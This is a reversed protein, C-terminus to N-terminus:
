VAAAAWYSSQLVAFDFELLVGVAGDRRGDVARVADDFPALASGGCFSDFRWRTLFVNVFLLLHLPLLLLWLLFLVLLSLLCVVM